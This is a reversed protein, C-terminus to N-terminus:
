KLSPTSSVSQPRAGRFWDIVRRTTIRGALRDGVMLEGNLGFVVFFGGSVVLVVAEKAIL